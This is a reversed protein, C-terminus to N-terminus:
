ANLYLVLVVVLAVLACAAVGKWFAASGETSALGDGLGEALGQGLGYGLDGQGQDGIGDRWAPDSLDLPALEPEPPSEGYSEAQSGGFLGWSRGGSSRSGSGGGASRGWSSSPRSSYSRRATSGGSKSIGKSGGKSGFGKAM